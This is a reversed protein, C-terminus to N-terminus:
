VPTSRKPGLSNERPPTDTLNGLRYEVLDAGSPGSVSSLLMEDFISSDFFQRDGVRKTATLTKTQKTLPTHMLYPNYYDYFNM